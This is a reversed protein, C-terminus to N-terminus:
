AGRLSVLVSEGCGPVRFAEEPLRAAQRAEALAREPADIAEQTLKFTGFHMALARRARLDAFARVAEEPNVHVARMFWRPEYAGIPLLALDFPGLRQGIEQFHLGWGSDGAFYLRGGGRAEIAFGGWLTQARDHLGRAAFHRAPTFHAWAGGPLPAPQWWDLELVNELGHKALLQANGLGTLIRPAFRRHLRRLTPIDCHDYHNHSLLVADIPPLADFALGPARVRKPGAFRLPSCRESWIPDTLLTPGGPLRILFSAHGLFTVVAQGDPPEPPPPYPPNEVWAPWPTGKGERMMRWVASLPQGPPSGDPNLFVKGRKQAGKVPTLAPQRLRPADSDSM